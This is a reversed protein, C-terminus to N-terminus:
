IVSCLVSLMFQEKNALQLSAICCLYMTTSFLVGIMLYVACIILVIVTVGYRYEIKRWRKILEVVPMLQDTLKLATPADRDWMQGTQLLLEFGTIFRTLPSTVSFSKIRNVTCLLQVNLLLYIVSLWYRLVNVCMILFASCKVYVRVVWEKLLTPPM